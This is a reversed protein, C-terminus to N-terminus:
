TMVAAWMQIVTIKRFRLFSVTVTTIKLGFAFCDSWVQWRYLDGRARGYNSVGEKNGGWAFPLVWDVCTRTRCSSRSTLM